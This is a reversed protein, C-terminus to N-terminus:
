CRGPEQKAWRGVWESWIPRGRVAHSGTSECRVYSGETGVGVGVKGESGGGGEGHGVLGGMEGGNEVAVVPEGGVSFLLVAEVAGVAVVIEGAVQTARGSVQVM